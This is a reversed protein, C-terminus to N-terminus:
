PSGTAPEASGTGAESGGPPPAERTAAAFAAAAAPGGWKARLTELVGSTELRILTKRLTDALVADGGLVAVEVPRLTIYGVTRAGPFDRAIYGGVLADAGLTDIRGDALAGFGDRLTDLTSVEEGYVDRLRWWAESRGQAGPKRGALADLTLTAPQNAFLAPGDFAYIGGTRAEAEVIQSTSLGALAVDAVPTAVSAALRGREFTVFRVKIGLSDGMASAVDVDLGALRGGAMGAFPPFAPDVAVTLVGPVKTAGEPLAAASSGAGADPAQSCAALLLAAALV